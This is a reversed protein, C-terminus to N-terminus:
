FQKPRRKHQPRALQKEDIKGIKVLYQFKERRETRRIADKRKQSRNIPRKYFRGDKARILVGSQQVRRTFRRLLREVSEGDKRKVVVVM